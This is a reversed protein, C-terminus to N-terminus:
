NMKAKKNLIENFSLYCSKLDSDYKSYIFDHLVQLGNMVTTHDSLNYHRAIASLKWGIKHLYDFMIYRASVVPRYRVKERLREPTFPKDSIWSYWVKKNKGNRVMVPEYYHMSVEIAVIEADYIRAKIPRYNSLHPTINELIYCANTLMKEM